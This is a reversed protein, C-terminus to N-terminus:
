MAGPMFRSSEFLQCQSLRQRVLTWLGTQVSSAFCTRGEPISPYLKINPSSAKLMPNLYNIFSESDHLQEGVRKDEICFYQFGFGNRWNFTTAWNRSRTLTADVIPFIGFLNWATKLLNLSLLTRKTTRAQWFLDINRLIVSFERQNAELVTLMQLFESITKMKLNLTM